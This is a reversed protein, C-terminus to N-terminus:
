AALQRNSGEYPLLIEFCTGEGLKSSVKIEGGHDQVIGYSISLGLGTGQGVPKTTYFPEFLKAIDKDAIGCGNDKITIAIGNDRAYSNVRIVGDVEIAQGANILLNALVQNIQGVNCRIPKDAQLDTEVQCKYKLDNAVMKLTTRICENIDVCDVKAQDVRSFNKLGQVIDKVREAGELSDAVLSSSDEVIFDLDEAVSFKDINTQIQAAHRGGSSLERSLEAYMELLKMYVRLYDRLTSLNSHIFGVPNNIEHAVGAALQGVSALKESQLLQAQAAKLQEYAQTLETHKTHLQATRREVRGELDDNLERLESQYKLQQEKAASLGDLMQNFANALDALEDSGQPKVRVELDGKTVQGAARTLGAIQKTLYTGLIFSFLAVLLMEFVAIALSLQKAEGLALTLDEISVGLQVEGYIEGGESIKAFVDFVDDVVTDLTQDAVFERQLQVSEGAQAYVLKDQGLVRAYVIEPNSVIEAVFSELSALDTSLVADKTTSSFLKATTHAYEILATENSSRMYGLATSVLIM